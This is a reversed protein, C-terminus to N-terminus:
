DSQDSDGDADSETKADDLGHKPAKTEKLEKLVQRCESIMEMMRSMMQEMM